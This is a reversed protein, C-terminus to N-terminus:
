CSFLSFNKNIFIRKMKYGLLLFMNGILKKVDFIEHTKVDLKFSLFNSAVLIGQVQSTTDCHKTKM